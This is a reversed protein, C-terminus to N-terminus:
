YVTFAARSSVAEGAVRDYVEVEFSYDGPDFTNLPISLGYTTRLGDSERNLPDTLYDIHKAPISGVRLDGQWFHCKFDLSPERTDEAVEPNYVEFFVTLKERRRFRVDATPILVHDRLLLPRSGGLFQANVPARLHAYEKRPIVREFLLVDSVALDEHSYDGLVVEREEFAASESNRLRAFVVLRYRGPKASLRTQYLFDTDGLDEEGTQGEAGVEVVDVFSAASSGDPRLLEVLVELSDNEHEADIGITVPLLTRGTESRVSGFFVDLEFRSYSLRSQVLERLRRKHELREYLIDGSTRDLDRLAQQYDLLSFSPPRNPHFVSEYFTDLDPFKYEGAYLIRYEGGIQRSRLFTM